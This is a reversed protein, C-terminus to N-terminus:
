ILDLNLETYFQDPQKEFWLKHQGPYLLELRRRVNILGIGAKGDSEDNKKCNNAVSFFLKQNKVIVEIKIWGSDKDKRFGHKFANEVFTILILPAIQQEETIGDTIFEISYNKNYRIREIEIYDKLFALEKELPVRPANSEYLTYRMLDSLRIICSAAVEDKDVILSYVNNLTNFFFHPNIQSKLLNLELNYNDRELQLKKIREQVLDRVIKVALAISLPTAIQLFFLYFINYNIILGRYSNLHLSSVFRKYYVPMDYNNNVYVYSFAVLQSAIYLLLLTFVGALWFRGKTFLRPLIFYAITYFCGVVLLFRSATLVYSYPKIEFGTSLRTDKFIWALILAWFLLHLWPRLRNGSLESLYSIFKNKL